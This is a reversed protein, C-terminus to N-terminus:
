FDRIPPFFGARWFAVKTQDHLCALQEPISKQELSKVFIKINERLNKTRYEYSHLMFYRFEHILRIGFTKTRVFLM